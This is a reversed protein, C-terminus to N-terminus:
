INIKLVKFLSKTKSSNYEENAWPMYNSGAKYHFIFCEDIFDNNEIKILDVFIPKPFNFKEIWKMMSFLFELSYNLINESEKQHPFIKENSWPNKPITVTNSQIDVILEFSGNVNTKVINDNIDECISFQNLYLNKLDKKHKELYFHGQGGVDVAVSNVRGCGWNMEKPNPMNPIDCIVIGNWPYFIEMDGRYHPVFAFNYNRMINCISVDKIFFMDSDIIVSINDDETIIKQWAWIIPYACALNPNCYKNDNYHIEGNMYQFEPDLEVAISKVGISNCINEIENFRKKDDVANNLVIYEFEDKIHDVITKYQISIFDPRKDSLTYIKIKKM